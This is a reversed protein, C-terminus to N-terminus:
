KSVATDAQPEASEIQITNDECIRDMTKGKSAAYLRGKENVPVELCARLKDDYKDLDAKNVFNKNPDRIVLDPKNDKEYPIVTYSESGGNRHDTISMSPKTTKTEGTQKDTYEKGGKDVYVTIPKTTHTEGKKDTWTVAEENAMVADIQKKMDYLSKVSDYQKSNSQATEAQTQSAQAAQVGASSVEKDVSGKSAAYLRGKENVPVELCARLTDDYKDLDAKNVFNKNPDRIVLDPKNDKEYPIVSYSESGGNRHDMISMSPKTTRTEGTQKDTYEKGGKDVYVTIPPTTHEVGKKDNWTVSAENSVAADIQKKMDYLSNIPNYDSM